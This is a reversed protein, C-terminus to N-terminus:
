SASRRESQSADVFRRGIRRLPWACAYAAAEPDLPVHGEIALGDTSEFLRRLHKSAPGAMGALVIKIM